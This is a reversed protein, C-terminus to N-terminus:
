TASTHRLPSCGFGTTIRIAILGTASPWPKLLCRVARARVGCVTRNSSLPSRTPLRPAIEFARNTRTRPLPAHAGARTNARTNTQARVRPHAHTRPPKASAESWHLHSRISAEPKQLPMASLSTGAHVLPPSRPFPENPLTWKPSPSFARDRQVPEGRRQAAGLCARADILSHGSGTNYVESRTGHKGDLLHDACETRSRWAQGDATSRRTHPAILGRRLGSPLGSDVVYTEVALSSLAFWASACSLCSIRKSLSSRWGFITRYRLAPERRGGCRRLQLARKRPSVAVEAHLGLASPKVNKQLVNGPAGDLAHELAEARQRLEHNAPLRFAIAMRTLGDM